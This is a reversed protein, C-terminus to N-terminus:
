QLDAGADPDGHALDPQGEGFGVGVGVVDRVDQGIEIAVRRPFRRPLNCAWVAGKSLEDTIVSLGGHALVTGFSRNFARRPQRLWSKLVGILFSRGGAAQWEM